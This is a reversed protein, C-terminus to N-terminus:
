INNKRNKPFCFSVVGGGGLHNIKMQLQQLLNCSPNSKKNFWYFFKRGKTCVSQQRKCGGYFFPLAFNFGFCFYSFYNSFLTINKYKDIFLHSTLFIL